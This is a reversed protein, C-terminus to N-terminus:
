INDIMIVAIMNPSLYVGKHASNPSCQVLSYSPPENFLTHEAIKFFGNYGQYIASPRLAGHCTGTLQLYYLGNLVSDLLFWLENETYPDEKLAKEEIEDELSKVIMELLVNVKYFSSCFTNEM